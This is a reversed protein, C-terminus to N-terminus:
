QRLAKWGIDKRYYADDWEIQNIGAYAAAQAAAIDAGLATVGLVRGGNAVLQGKAGTVSEAGKIVTGKKYEAPYGKAAMVVTVASEPKWALEVKELQGSAALLMAEGFDSDSRMMLSQCEPDGFRVNHELLKVRGGGGAGGPSVGACLALRFAPARGVGGGFGCSWGGGPVRLPSGPCGFASSGASVRRGLGAARASAPSLFAFLVAFASSPVHLGCFVGGGVCSAQWNGEKTVTGSSDDEEEVADEPGGGGGM